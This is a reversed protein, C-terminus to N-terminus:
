VTSARDPAANSSGCRTDYAPSSGTIRNASDNFERPDAVARGAALGAASTYHVAIPDTLEGVFSGDVQDVFGIFVWSGDLDHVLRPAYLTPHKFPRAAAVDWPGTVTPGTAIWIRNTADDRTPAISNSCFLLLPQGDVVAVQPVELHGFGAPATLPPQVTWHVLDTSRAHAIVGRELPPGENARATLLMHWGDGQPDAFVWPDRWAEEYWNALDLREYWVSDAEIIPNAGHRQWTTLDESVALGIRQVLGQEAWSVGTYFLYWRHDPGRVISGTWIALDDWSPTDAPGLADVTRQWSRLDPSVAHGIRAHHHRRDADCVARPAHLFFVHRLGDDDQVHWSDWVWQDALRLM